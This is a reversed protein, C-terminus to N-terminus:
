VQSMRGMQFHVNEGLSLNGLVSEGLAHKKLFKGLTM